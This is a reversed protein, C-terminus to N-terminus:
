KQFTKSKREKVFDIILLIVGMIFLAICCFLAYDSAVHGDMNMIMRTLEGIAEVIATAFLSMGIFLLGLNKM